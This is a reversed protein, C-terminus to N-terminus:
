PIDHGCRAWCYIYQEYCADYDGSSASCSELAVACWYECSGAAATMSAGLGIAFLFAAFLKKM